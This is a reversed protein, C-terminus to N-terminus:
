QCCFRGLTFVHYICQMPSQMVILSTHLEIPVIWWEIQVARQSQLFDLLREFVGKHDLKQRIRWPERDLCSEEIQAHRGTSDAHETNISCISFLDSNEISARELRFFAIKILALHLLGQ